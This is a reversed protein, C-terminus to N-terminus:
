DVGEQRTAANPHSLPKSWHTSCCVDSIDLGTAKVADIVEKRNMHSDPEIGQFGAAKIANCKELVSGALGVTGWMISKKYNNAPQRIAATNGAFIRNETLSISLAGTALISKKIFIRRQM